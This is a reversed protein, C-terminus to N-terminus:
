LEVVILSLDDYCGLTKENAARYFIQDLAKKKKITSNTPDNLFKNLPKFFPSFPASRKVLIPELGDSTIFLFKFKEKKEHILVLNEDFNPDTFLYTQNAYEVNSQKSIIETKEELSGFIYGDGLHVCLFYNDDNFVVVAIM